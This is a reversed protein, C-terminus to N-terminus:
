WTCGTIGDSSQVWMGSTGNCICLTNRSTLSITGGNTGSCVVPAAVNAKLRVQGNVDLTAQPSATGLGLRGQYTLRMKENIGQGINRTNFLLDTPVDAGAVPGAVVSQLSIASMWGGSGAAGPAWGQFELTGLTDGVATDGGARTKQFKLFRGYSTNESDRLLQTGEVHLAREPANTGIGVNGSYFISSVSSGVQWISGGGAGSVSVCGSIVNTSTNKMTKVTVARPKLFPTGLIDINSKYSVELVAEGSGAAAPPALDGPVYKLVIKSILATDDVYPVNLDYKVSGDARLISTVDIEAGNVLTLGQLTRECSDKDSFHTRIESHLQTVNSQLKQFNQNKMMNIMISSVGMMVMGLLASAILVEILTFGKSSALNRVLLRANNM